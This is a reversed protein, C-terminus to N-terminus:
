LRTIKDTAQMLPLIHTLDDETALNVGSSSGESKLTDVWEGNEFKKISKFEKDKGEELDVWLQTTDTPPLESEIMKFNHVKM